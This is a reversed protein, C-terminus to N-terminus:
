LLDRFYREFVADIGDASNDIVWEKRIYESELCSLQQKAYARQAQEDRDWPRGRVQKRKWICDESPKLLRIYVTVGRKELEDRYFIIPTPPNQYLIFELVVNDGEAFAALAKELTKRQVVIEEDPTRMEGEPRGRKIEVWFEDESVVRWGGDRAVRLATTTKGSGAPGSVIIAKQGPRRGDPSLNGTKM